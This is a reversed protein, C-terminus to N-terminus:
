RFQDWKQRADDGLAWLIGAKMLSHFGPNNWSREDHGYATYFVRGKGYEKVWTWPEHHEGEVREMLVTIDAALKSHEYTEDWTSFEELSKTISHDKNVITTTFTDTKHKLFQGGVLDIYKPSNRFCFSACHVPLFGRGKEVFSLLASEQSATISDHNAYIMLADYKDLNEANLDNPDSTYTFAIGETSLQTALMPLFIASNHHQSDHGLFLIELKGSDNRIPKSGSNCSVLFTLAALYITTAIYRMISPNEVDLKWWCM